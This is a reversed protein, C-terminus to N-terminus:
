NSVCCVHKNQLEESCSAEVRYSMKKNDWTETLEHQVYEQVTKLGQQSKNVLFSLRQKGKNVFTIGQDETISRPQRFIRVRWLLISHMSWSTLFRQHRKISSKIKKKKKFVPRSDVTSIKKMEGIISISDEAPSKSSSVHSSLLKSM